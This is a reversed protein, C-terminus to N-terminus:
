AQHFYKDARRPSRSELESGRLGCLRTGHGSGTQHSARLASASRGNATWLLNQAEAYEHAAELSQSHLNRSRVVQDILLPTARSSRLDAALRGIAGLVESKQGLAIERQDRERHDM